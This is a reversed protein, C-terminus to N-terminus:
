KAARLAAEISKDMDYYKYGGLRGGVVLNPMRASEAQYKALLERSDGSDVPYYPEDGPRWASPYERMIVTKPSDMVTANEPHYHKFEHIRTYPVEAETYNVVSTGQYDRVALKETEFRLTRWPLAGFKYGFLADIPGSYYVPVDPLDDGCVKFRGHDLRFEANCRVDVGPHDLLRAFLSNYGSLPIGQNYDNFYNVDYNCRVPVRRVISPDIQEPPKGWQKSTYGRFFADFVAASHSEDAMFGSVEGPKLEVGFFKNVLALGLPLYYMRGKYNALVKHQYGNFKVFRNVFEWVEPIHTHFIHSGYEHVEIGTEEDIECRVNGGVAPRKELVLVKRGSEALHRAVTCGWIGAGAVVADITM